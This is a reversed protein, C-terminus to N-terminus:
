QLSSIRCFLGTIKLLKSITTATASVPALKSWTHIPHSRNTPKKFDYIEKASYRRKLLARKCFLGIIKLLRSITAVGYRYRIHTYSYTIHTYTHAQTHTHTHIHTHPLKGVCAAKPVVPAPLIICSGFCCDTEFCCGTTWFVLRNDLCYDTAIQQLPPPSPDLVM